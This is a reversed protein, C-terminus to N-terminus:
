RHRPPSLLPCRRVVLAPRPTPALRGWCLCLAASFGQQWWTQFCSKIWTCNFSLSGWARTHLRHASPLVLVNAVKGSVKVISYLMSPRQTKSANIPACSLVHSRSLLSGFFLHLILFTFLFKVSSLGILIHKILFFCCCKFLSTLNM